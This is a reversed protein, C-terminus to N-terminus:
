CDLLTTRLRLRSAARRPRGMIPPTPMVPSYGRASRNRRAHRPSLTLRPKATPRTPMLARPLAPRRTAVARALVARRLDGGLRSTRADHYGTLGTAPARGHSRADPRDRSHYPTRSAPPAPRPCPDRSCAARSATGPAPAPIALETHAYGQVTILHGGPLLQAALQANQCSIAQDGTNSVVLVPSTSKNWPGAQAPTAKHPHRRRAPRVAVQNSARAKRGALPM